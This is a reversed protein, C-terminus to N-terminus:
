AVIAAKLEPTGDVPTYKTKGNKIADNAALKVNDPTDFDPEGVSLSIIDIGQRKLEMAKTKIAITQSPKLSLARNSLISSMFFIKLITTCKLNLRLPVCLMKSQRM